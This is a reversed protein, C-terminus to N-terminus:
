WIGPILRRTRARYLRFEEGFHAELLSDEVRIRYTVAPLLLGFLAVLGALSAYGLSLGLAILLYGAYAPHRITGYPGRQVLEQGEKVSVHGSYSAGLTRRAWIFLAAGLALLAMGGIEMWLAHALAPGTLLYELPSLYFAAIMGVTILWFSRDSAEEQTTEGGEKSVWFQEKRIWYRAIVGAFYSVGVLALFWGTLNTRVTALGLGALLIALGLAIVVLFVAVRQM